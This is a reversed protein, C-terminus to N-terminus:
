SAAHLPELGPFFGPSLLHHPWFRPDNISSTFLVSSPDFKGLSLRYNFCYDWPYLRPQLILHRVSVLRVM